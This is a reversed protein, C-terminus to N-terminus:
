VFGFGNANISSIVNTMSTGVLDIYDTVTATSLDAVNTLRILEVHVGDSFTALGIFSGNGGGNNTLTPRQANIYTLLSGASYVTSGFSFINGVPMTGAVAIPFNVLVPTAGAALASNAGGAATMATIANAGTFALVTFNLKDGTSSSNSLNWGNVTILTPAANIAQAATGITLTDPVATSHAGYTVTYGGQGLVVTDQGTGVSVTARVTNASHAGLNITNNGNGLTFSNATLSTSNNVNTVTLNVTSNDSSGNVVIAAGAMASAQYNINGSLTLNTLSAGTHLVPTLTTGAMTGGITLTGTSGTTIVESTAANDVLTPITTTGTNTSQIILTGAGNTATLSTLNTNSTGAISLSSLSTDNIDNIFSTVASNGANNTISLVTSTDGAISAINVTQSGALTLSSLGVDTLTNIAYSSAVATTASVSSSNNNTVTFSSVGVTGAANNLNLANVTFTGAAAALGNIAGTGSLTLSTLSGDTFNTIRTGAAATGGTHTDNLTFSAATDSALTTIIVGATGTVNLTSLRTDTLTTITHNNAATTAFGNITVNGLGVPASLGTSASVANDQLTLAPVTFAAATSAQLGSTVELKTTSIGLNVTVADTAGTTTNYQFTYASGVLPAQNISLSTGSAAKSITITRATASDVFLEVANIGTMSSLDFVGNATPGLGLVSFGTLTGTGTTLGLGAGRGAADWVIENTTSDAANTYTGGAISTTIPNNVWVLNKGTSTSGAFSQAGTANVQVEAQVVGSSSNTVTKLTTIARVDASFGAAGSITLTSLKTLNGLAGPGALLSVVTEGNNTNANTTQLFGSSGAVTLTTLNGFSISLDVLSRTAGTTVNLTSIENNTDLLTLGNRLGLVGVVTSANASFGNNNLTLNLTRNAASTASPLNNTITVQGGFIANNLTLTTLANDNITAVQTRPGATAVAVGGLGTLSVTTLVGNATTSATSVDNVTVVGAVIQAITASAATTPTSQTLSISTTAARGAMTIAGGTLLTIGNATGSHNVTLSQTTGGTVTIAGTGVATTNNAASDSATVSIAGLPTATTSGVVMTSTAASTIGTAIVTVANGGLVSLANAAQSTVGVTLNQTASATASVVGSGNASVTAVGSFASGSTDSTLSENSNINLTQVNSFTAGAPVTLVYAGASGLDNITLTNKGGTAGNVADGSTLTAGSGNVSGVFSSNGSGNLSDTGTTLNVTTVANALNTAQAVNVAVAAAVTIDPNVAGAYQVASSITSNWATAATGYTAGNVPDAAISSWLDLVAKVAAGRAAPAAANLQGTVYALAVSVSSATQGNSGTVIGLNTIIQQAVASTTMAGFSLSYYNNFTAILGGGAVDSVIGNTSAFGLQSGYLGNAFRAIQVANTPILFSM